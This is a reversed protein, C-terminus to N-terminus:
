VEDTKEEFDSCTDDDINISKISSKTCRYSDSSGCILVMNSDMNHWGNEMRKGYKCSKCNM